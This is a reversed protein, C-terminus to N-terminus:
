SQGEQSAILLPLPHDDLLSTIICGDQVRSPRLAEATLVDALQNMHPRDKRYLATTRGPAPISCPRAIARLKQCLAALSRCLVRHTSCHSSPKRTSSPGFDMGGNLLNIDPTIRCHLM